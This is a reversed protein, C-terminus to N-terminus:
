IELALFLIPLIKLSSTEVVVFNKISYISGTTKRSLHPQTEIDLFNISFLSRQFNQITLIRICQGFVVTEMSLIKKCTTHKLNFEQHFFQFMYHSLVVVKFISLLSFFVSKPFKPSDPNQHLSCLDVIRADFFDEVVLFNEKSVEISCVFGTTKFLFLNSYRSFNLNSPKRQFNRVIFTRICLFLVIIKKVEINM